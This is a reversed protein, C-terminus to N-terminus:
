GESHRALPTPRRTNLALYPNIFCMAGKGVTNECSERDSYGCQVVAGLHPLFGCYEQAHVGTASLAAFPVSMAAAALLTIGCRM